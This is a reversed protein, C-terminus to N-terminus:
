QKYLADAEDRARKREIPDPIGKLLLRIIPDTEEPKTTLAPLKKDGSGYTHPVKASNSYWDGYCWHGTTLNENYAKERLTSSKQDVKKRIQMSVYIAERHARKSDVNFHFLSSNFLIVSGATANVKRISASKIQPDDTDLKSWTIGCSRHRQMYDEFFATCSVNDPKVYAFGGDQDSSDTLMLIGQICLDKNSRSQDTHPWLTISDNTNNPILFSAGDMSSVLDDTGWVNSFLDLLLYRAEWMFREQGICTKFIGHTTPHLQDYRWSSPNAPDIPNHQNCSRMWNWLGTRLRVLKDQSVVNSVVTVGHFMLSPMWIEKDNITAHPFTTPILKGYQEYCPKTPGITYGNARDMLAGKIWEAKQTKLLGSPMLSKGGKVTSKFGREAALTDLEIVKMEDIDVPISNDQSM